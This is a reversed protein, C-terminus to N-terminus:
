AGRGLAAVFALSLILGPFSLFIDTIRMMVTDCWGGFYGATDGVFSWAARCRDIRHAIISLTISRAMSLAASSIVAWSTRVSGIPPTQPGFRM